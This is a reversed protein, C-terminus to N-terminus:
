KNEDENEQEQKKRKILIVVSSSIVIALLTITGMMWWNVSSDITVDARNLSRAADQEVTFTEEWEWEEDGSRATMNLIYTGSRFRDGDLPIPFSFHSNPAMQMNSKEAEYLVEQTGEERVRAEVELRNVFTPTFNQITASFVNRYNVQDPFIDILELDPEVTTRKNSVVVGLVYSFANKIAVGQEADDEEEEPPIEQVHIGGALVGEFNESPMQIPMQLMVKENAALTVEGPASILEEISEPLTPDPNEADKGYEVIGNVNTFATHISVDLTITKNSSNQVELELIDSEGAELNLDFYNTSGGDIQSSPLVPQIYFNLESESDAAVLITSILFFVVAITIWVAQNLIRKAKRAIILENREFTHCPLSNRQWVKNDIHYFSKYQKNKFSQTQKAM